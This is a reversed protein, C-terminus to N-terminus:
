VGFTIELYRKAGRKKIEREKKVTEGRSTLSEKYVLKWPTGKSTSNVVGRNHRQLRKEIDSTQGIYYRELSESYLIYVYFEM